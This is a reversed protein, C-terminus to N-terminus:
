ALPIFPTGSALYKGIPPPLTAGQLAATYMPVSAKRRRRYFITSGFKFNTGRVAFFVANTSDALYFPICGFSYTM